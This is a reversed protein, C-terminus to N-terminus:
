RVQQFKFYRWMRFVIMDADNEVMERHTKYKVRRWILYVKRAVHFSPIYLELMSEDASQDAAAYVVSSSLFLMLCIFLPCHLLSRLMVVDFLCTVIFLRTWCCAFFANAFLFLLVRLSACHLANLPPPPQAPKWTNEWWWSSPFSGLLLLLRLRLRLIRDCALIIPKPRYYM